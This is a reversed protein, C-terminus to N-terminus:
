LLKGLVAMDSQYELNTFFDLLSHAKKEGLVPTVQQLFLKSIEEWTFMDNPHGKHIKQTKQYINGDATRITITKEPFDGAQYLDFCGTLTHQESPGAKVKHAFELIKPNTFNERSFWKHSPEPDYMSVAILYPISFQAEMLSTFGDGGTNMRYQTPPDIIIEDIQEPTLQYKKVLDFVVELPTQVWMNAPWHKILIELIFWRKGLDCNYWEPSIQKTLHEAYAYPIDFANELNDIGEEACLAALLGNQAAFGHQYHYANSMTAQFLNTTITSYIAAMGYTQNTKKKDLGLIKAATAAAAYIQWSCLGWGQSHDFGPEPQVAMAIRSYVEFGTVVAEIYEKGTIHKEEAVAVGVPIVGASPHGTYACDEWDLIDSVTGNVFAASTMSMKRNDIWCSASGGEGNCRGAVRIAAKGLEDASAAISAGITHMTMIKAKEIVKEPLVDYKLGCAFEALNQTYTTNSANFFVKAM